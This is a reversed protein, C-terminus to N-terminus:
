DTKPIGGFSKKLVVAEKGPMQVKLASNRPMM